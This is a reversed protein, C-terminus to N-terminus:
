SLLYAAKSSSSSPSLMVTAVRGLTLFLFSALGAGEWSLDLLVEVGAPFRLPKAEALGRLPNSSSRTSSFPTPKESQIDPWFDPPLGVAFAVAVCPFPTAGLARLVAMGLTELGSESESEINMGLSVEILPLTESSDPESSDTPTLILFTVKSKPPLSAVPLESLSASFDALLDM